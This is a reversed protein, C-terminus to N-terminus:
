SVETTEMTGAVGPGTVLKVRGPNEDISATITLQEQPLWLETDTDGDVETAYGSLYANNALLDVDGVTLETAGTNDVRVTLEDATSNYEALTLDIATNQAVLTRDTREDQAEHVNEFGNATATYFMGFAVFLGVFVIAASGSVSFGM